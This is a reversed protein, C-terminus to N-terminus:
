PLKEAAQKPFRRNIPGVGELRPYASTIHHNYRDQLPSRRTSAESIKFIVGFFTQCPKIAKESLDLQYRRPREKHSLKFRVIRSPFAASARRDSYLLHRTHVNSQLAKSKGILRNFLPKQLLWAIRRKTPTSRM